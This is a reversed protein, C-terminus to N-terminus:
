VCCFSNGKPAAGKNKQPLITINAFVIRRHFAKQNQKYRHKHGQGGCRLEDGKVAQQEIAVALRNATCADINRVGLFIGLAILLAAESKCVYLRVVRQVDAVVLLGVHNRDLPLAADFDTQHGFLDLGLLRLLEDVETHVIDPLTLIHAVVTLDRALLQHCRAARINERGQRPQNRADRHGLIELRSGVRDRNAAAAEVLIALREEHHILDDDGRDVM